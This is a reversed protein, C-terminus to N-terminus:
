PNPEEFLHLPRTGMQADNRIPLRVTFASGNGIESDARIEGGMLEVLQRTISLGLGTGRNERTVSNDVQRFPEFIYQLAEPPIGVGTDSVQLVWHTTDPASAKVRISGSPTYKIANGVLNILVQQLRQSDTLIRAPLDPTTEIHLTLGKVGALPAMKAEVQKLVDRPNCWQLHITLKRAEIQAADLLENVIVTLYNVSEVIQSVADTQEANLPGFAHTRLLEAYGLIGGLPTRLEHNVKSLLQSKVKSGELAQDRALALAEEFRKRETIDRAMAQFGIVRGDEEIIQVNQGLWIEGVATPRLAFEYYSSPQRALFQRKYFRAMKHREQPEAFELYHKGVLESEQYGTVHLGTPNVYTIYGNEDTRYIVDGANEVLQRFRVESEHLLTEIQKRETIDEKIAVYHTIQGDPSVIPSISAFEWYLTGNKKRNCFEGHWSEGARITEWLEQHTRAPTRDTKLIRPNEGIVEEPRYGTVQTFKPNVYCIKGESDTIVISTPSAEVARSLQRLQEQTRKHESIDHITVAQGLFQRETNHIPSLHLEYWRQDEGEGLTIESLTEPGHRYRELLPPWGRLLESVTLGLISPRPLDLLKQAAPNLDVIRDQADLVIMGDQMEDVILDRALPSLKVLQFGFVAWALGLVSVTFAFPTLDLHRIPSRGSLYLANGVWPALMAILLTAAQGRYPGQRNALFRLILTAGVALLVYSFMPYFFYLPGRVIELASFGDVELVNTQQWILGHTQTTFALALTLLPPGILLSLLWQPLRKGQSTHSIAFFLWALPVAVIGMYQMKGWFVKSALDPAAIELAYGLAWETIALAMISLALANPGHRHRWAYLAVGGSVVAAILLPFTYPTFHYSLVIM